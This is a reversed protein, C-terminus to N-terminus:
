KPSSHSPAPQAESLPQARCLPPREDSRVDLRARSLVPLNTVSRCHEGQASLGVAQGGLASFAGAVGCAYDSGLLHDVRVTQNLSCIIEESGPRTRPVCGCVEPLNQSVCFGCFLFLM